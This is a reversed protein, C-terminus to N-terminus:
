PLLKKKLAALWTLEYSGQYSIMRWDERNKAPRQWNRIGMKKEGNEENDVEKKDEHKGGTLVQKTPVELVNNEKANLKRVEGGYVVISRM